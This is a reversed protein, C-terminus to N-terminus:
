RSRAPVAAVEDRGHVARHSRPARRGERHHRGLRQGQRHHVDEEHARRRRARGRRRRRRRRRAGRRGGDAARDGARGVQRRDRPVRRDGRRAHAGPARRLVRGERLLPLARARPRPLSRHGRQRDRVRAGPARARCGSGPPPVKRPPGYQEATPLFTGINAAELSPALEIFSPLESDLTPIIVDLPTQAHVYHLREELAGVGQSPYPVVYVDDVLERPYLGPELADYALGVIREVLGTASRLARVVGVGPGPNDTANLGTVAITLPREM